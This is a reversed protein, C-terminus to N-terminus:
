CCGLKPKDLTLKVGATSSTMEGLMRRKTELAIRSFAEDVGEGNNKASVEMYTIKHSEALAQGEQKTIVRNFKEDCKNGVLLISTNPDGKERIQRCWNNVNDFTQKDTVDFVLMVANSGKFYSTTIARFREQGATDWIQLKARLDEVIVHKTKFDIGLTSTLTPKFTNDVYRLLLSTKGTGSDGLMLVKIHIDYPEELM